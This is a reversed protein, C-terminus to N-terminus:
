GPADEAGDTEDHDEVNRDRDDAQGGEGGLVARQQAAVPKACRQDSDDRLDAFVHRAIEAIRQLDEDPQGARQNQEGRRRRGDRTESTKGIREAFM